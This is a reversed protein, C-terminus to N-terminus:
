GFVGTILKVGAALVLVYIVMSFARQPIRKQMWIGLLTGVLVAPALYPLYSLTELTVIGRWLYPGLKMLNGVLFFWITTGVYRRKDLRQPLLFMSIVPGSGHALTSTVGAATGAALGHWYRPRYAGREDDEQAGGPARARRIMMLTQIAVFVICVLGVLGGLLRHGHEIRRFWELSIMGVVIGAACGPLLMALDRRDCQRFYHVISFYDGVMLVPLLVGLMGEPGIALTVLAPAMIAVGTGFGAKSIGVLLAALVLAPWTFM